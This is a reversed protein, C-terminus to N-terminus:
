KNDNKSITLIESKTHEKNYFSVKIQTSEKDYITSETQFTMLCLM